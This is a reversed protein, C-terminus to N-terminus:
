FGKQSGKGFEYKSRKRIAKQIGEPKKDLEMKPNKNPNTRPNMAQVMTQAENRSAKRSTIGKQIGIKAGEQAGRIHEGKSEQNSEKGM